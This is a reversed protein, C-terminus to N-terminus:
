YLRWTSSRRASWKKRAAALTPSPCGFTKTRQGVSLQKRGLAAGARVISVDQAAFARIREDDSSTSPRLLPRLAM